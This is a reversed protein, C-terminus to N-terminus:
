FLYGIGLTASIGSIPQNYSSIERGTNNQHGYNNLTINPKSSFFDGRLSIGLHNLLKYRLGLGADFGFASATGSSQAFTSISIPDTADPKNIAQAIIAPSSTTTIGGLVRAEITLNGLPLAFYPGVLFSTSSYNGASATASDCDFAELYGKAISTQDVGFSSTSFMGGMGFNSTLYWAGSAAFHSGTQAFGSSNKDFDSSAFNGIPMAIGGSIEIFNGPKTSNQAYAAQSICLLCIASFITALITKM